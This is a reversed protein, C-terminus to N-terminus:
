FVTKVEKQTLCSEIKNFFAGVNGTNGLGNSTNQMKQNDDDSSSSSSDENEDASLDCWM